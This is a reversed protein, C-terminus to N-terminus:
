FLFKRVDVSKRAAGDRKGLSAFLGKAGSLRKEAKGSERSASDMGEGERYGHLRIRRNRESLVSLALEPNELLIKRNEEKEKIEKLEKEKSIKKKKEIKLESKDIKLKEVPIFDTLDMTFPIEKSFKGKDIKAFIPEEMDLKELETERSQLYEEMRGTEKKGQGKYPCMIMELYKKEDIRINGFRNKKAVKELQTLKTQLRSLQM